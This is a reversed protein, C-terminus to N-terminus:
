NPRGAYGFPDFRDAILIVWASAATSPIPNGYWGFPIFYRRSSYLYPQSRIPTTPEVILNAYNAPKGPVNVQIYRGYRLNQIGALMHAEDAMLKSVFVQAQASETASRQEARYHHLMDRVMVIAGATWEASLVGARFDGQQTTGNADADSYGVGWLSQGEGYAGWKKLREWVQYAAGFGFWDDIQEAGLAAVGWTNVDVARPEPMPRWETKSEPENAFGATVFEGNRWAHTHLFERIGKTQRADPLVGGSLMTEILHSVEKIRKNADSSLEPDATLETALTAKLIRLGAFLSLNNEISVFYPSAAATGQNQTTGAPAYYIAGIASQMAAFARLASVANQVAPESFPVCRGGRDVVYHLYAAQLPGVLFAWANDGTIPKWDTWSVHGFRYEPNNGPLGGVTIFHAYQSDKLPDPALWQPATMRFAYASRPDTIQTGNYEYLSGRTTARAGTPVDRSNSVQSLVQNQYSALQYSDLDLLNAFHNTVAGLVVAIQWTAADYINTGNHVNVRETQLIAGEGNRAKVAYDNPDYYDAVSCNVGRLRCVYDGWYRESDSFSYPLVIGKLPGHLPKYLAGGHTDRYSVLYEYTGALEEIDSQAVANSTHAAIVCVVVLVSARRFPM